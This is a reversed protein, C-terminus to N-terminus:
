KRPNSKRDDTFLKGDGKHCETCEGVTPLGMFTGYEDYKHCTGCNSIAYNEVHTKHSFPVSLGEAKSDKACSAALLVPLVCAAALCAKIYTSLSYRM